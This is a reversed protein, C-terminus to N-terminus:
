HPDIVDNRGCRSCSSVTIEEWQLGFKALQVRTGEHSEQSFDTSLRALTTLKHSVKETELLLRTAEHRAKEECIRRIAHAAIDYMPFRLVKGIKRVLLQGTPLEDDDVRDTPQIDEGSALGAAIQARCKQYEESTRYSVVAKGVWTELAAWPIRGTVHSLINTREYHTAEVTGDWITPIHRTPSTTQTISTPPTNNFIQNMSM